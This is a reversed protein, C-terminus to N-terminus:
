LGGLLSTSRKKADTYDGGGLFSNTRGRGTTLRSAEAARRQRLLTDTLTPALEPTGMSFGGGLSVKDHEVAAAASDRPTPPPKGLDKRIKTEQELTQNGKITATSDAAGCM